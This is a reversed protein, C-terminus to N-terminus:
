QDQPTGMVCTSFRLGNAGETIRYTVALRSIESGDAGTRSFEGRLTATGGDAIEIQSDRTEIRHCGASRAAEVQKTLLTLLAAETSLVHMGDDLSFVMPVGYFELLQVVDSVEGRCLSAFVELYTDFWTQVDDNDM